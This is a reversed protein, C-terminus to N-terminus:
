IAMPSCADRGRTLIKEDFIKEYFDSRANESNSSNTKLSSFHHFHARKAFAHFDLDINAGRGMALHQDM